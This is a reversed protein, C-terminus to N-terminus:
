RIIPSGKFVMHELYHAVGFDRPEEYRSGAKVMVVAAVSEVGSMPVRLLTLGNQLHSIKLM